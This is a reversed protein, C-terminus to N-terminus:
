ALEVVSPNSRLLNRRSAQVYRELVICTMVDRLAVITVNVVVPVMFRIRLNYPEKKTHTCRGGSTQSYRTRFASETVERTGNEM